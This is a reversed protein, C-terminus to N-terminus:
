WVSRSVRWNAAHFSLLTGQLVLAKRMCSDSCDESGGMVGRSLHVIASPLAESAPTALPTLIGNACRHLMDQVEQLELGLSQPSPNFTELVGFANRLHYQM